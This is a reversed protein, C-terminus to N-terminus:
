MIYMSEYVDWIYGDMGGGVLVIVFECRVNVPIVGEEGGGCLYMRIYTGMVGEGEFMMVCVPVCRVHGHLWTEEGGGVGWVYKCEYIYREVGEGGSVFVMVCICHVCRVDCTDSGRGDVM